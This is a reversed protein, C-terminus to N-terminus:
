GAVIRDVPEHGQAVRKEEQVEFPGCPHVLVCRFREHVRGHVHWFGVFLFAGDAELVVHSQGAKFFEAASLDEAVDSGESGGEKLGRYVALLQVRNAIAIVVGVVFLPLTTGLLWLCCNLAM